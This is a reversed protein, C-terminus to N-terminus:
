PRNTTHTEAVEKRLQEILPHFQERNREGLEALREHAQLVRKAQSHKSQDTAEMTSMEGPLPLLTSVIHEIVRKMGLEEFLSVVPPLVSQPRLEVNAREARDTLEHITGLFTSDICMCLAFDLLMDHGAKIHGGCEDYFAASEIWTAKGHISMYTRSVDRGVLIEANYRRPSYSPAHTQVTQGHDRRSERDGHTLMVITV